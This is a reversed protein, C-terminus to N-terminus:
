RIGHSGFQGQVAPDAQVQRAPLRRDASQLSRQRLADLHRARRMDWRTYPKDRGSVQLSLQTVWDHSRSFQVGRAASLRPRM